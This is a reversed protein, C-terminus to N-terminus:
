PAAPVITPPAEGAEAMKRQLLEALERRLDAYAPDSVLNQREHPDHQLDYLCQEEYLASGPQQPPEWAPDDQPRPVWVGYKWRKTRVARGIHDESIQVFIEQPWEVEKGALLHQLPRGQMIEPPPISAAALITSPLDILSVLEDIVMGGTFGPGCAIFPVRISAEHCSRKYESNRTRFHSGHDSTYIIITNDAMGLEGLSARLRGLNTDLSACCGLYDPYQERWDGATGVLDGPVVFDKFRERSGIPGEYRHHDNQHHPEIYSLFLFVPRQRNRTHLYELAFDTLADARYGTFNVQRMEADFLHGDYGHSTSELADAGLWYEDYGGRREPPVPQDNTAALHWKGIYGVEYDSGSLCHALTCAYPPLPIGNQFVGVRTAYQGTQIVARAPGCLPQPTFAHSFRVGEAAMRDLNPTVPLPQGYAGVTDWRQQDSFVVVINPSQEAM